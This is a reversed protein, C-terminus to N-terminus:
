FFDIKVGYGSGVMRIEGLILTTCANKKGFKRGGALLFLKHINSTPVPYNRLFVVVFFQDYNTFSSSVM